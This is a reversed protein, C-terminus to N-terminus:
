AEASAIPLLAPRHRYAAFIVLTMLSLGMCAWFVGRHGVSDLLVGFGFYGVLNGTSYSNSYISTAVGTQGPVLDQFFTIAVNTTVAISAASLIQMPYIHWPAGVFTLAFFYCVAIVVGFRILRVQHGQAALRGFWIMLPMEVVPAIGFIIGVDRESGGLHQTVLLPLNMMNMTFAAFVLVFGAFHALIIPRRLVNRLPERRTQDAAPPHPRNAVFRMVGLLFLLFLGAASLFIGRYGFNMMVVAGIAPGVTWALSFSVRVLSMLLPGDSSMNEPRALEERVHAFLQSFNVSAVGLALSGIITLILPDRVFAYGTYGLLGGTAGLMLMSRRSVRSDSWAALLTSLVIASVSTITMFMGFLLPTMGIAITGWMSMFPVVFSYALGLAFNIALLGPLGPHRLVSRVIEVLRSMDSLIASELAGAELLSRLAHRVM